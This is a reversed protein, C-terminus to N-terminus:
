CMMGSFLSSVTACTDEPFLFVWVLGSKATQDGQLLTELGGPCFAKVMHACSCLHVRNAGGTRLGCVSPLFPLM